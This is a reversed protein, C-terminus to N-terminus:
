KLKFSLSCALLILPKSLSIDEGYKTTGKQPCKKIFQVDIDGRELLDLFGELEDEGHEDNGVSKGARVRRRFYDFHLLNFTRGGGQRM